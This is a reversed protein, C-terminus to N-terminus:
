WTLTRSGGRKSVWQSRSWARLFLPKGTLGRESPQGAAGDVLHDVGGVAHNAMAGRAVLGEAKGGCPEVIENGLSDHGVVRCPAIELADFERIRRMWDPTLANAADIPSLPPRATTM